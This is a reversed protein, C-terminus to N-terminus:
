DGEGRIDDQSWHATDDTISCSSEPRKAFFCPPPRKPLFPIGFCRLSSVNASVNQIIHPAYGTYARECEGDCLGAGVVKAERDGNGGPRREQEVESLLIPIFAAGLPVLPFPSMDSARKISQM